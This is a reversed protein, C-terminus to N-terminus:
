CALNDRSAVYDTEPVEHGLLVRLSYGLSVDVLCRQYFCKGRGLMRSILVNQPKREFATGRM